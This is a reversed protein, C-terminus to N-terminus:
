QIEDLRVPRNEAMSRYAAFLMQITLLNDRVSNEPERDEEIARMLEGMTGMFAHPFWKGELTPSFWYNPDIEKSIFSITDERGVPYNYLAGNTGNIIGKTGEFRFTAFWDEVNAWNNHNDHVLGRTEGPFKMHLMTRTEGKVSQGPYKAGDAYIYEPTGLLFRIADMYHISHYMVELTDVERLFSWNAFNTNVNVQITAQTVEGLWGRQIISHSARIGPAWRMQQNIAGKVGARDCMDVISKASSFSDALPKQCLVHKGAAAAMRVIDPQLDATLAIDVIEVEPDFILEEVTDYVKPIDYRNAVIEAKNRTRNTIGVVNFGAMRYAPLHAESVIEGAGVIGIGFSKNKPLKPKYDLDLWSTHDKVDM